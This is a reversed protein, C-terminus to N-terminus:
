IDEEVLKLDLIYLQTTKVNNYEGDLEAGIVKKEFGKKKLIIGVEMKSARRLNSSVLYDAYKDYFAEFSVRAGIEKICYKKIFDDIPTSHQEYKERRQEVTGENTFGGNTIIQKLYFICKKAFNKYEQEPITDLVSKKESFENLFDVICWRRYFGFATDTTEPLTNCAIIPKAYLHADFSGKGKFEIRMLDDGTVRKLTNTKKFVSKDVEGIFVVLKKYLKSGEFNLKALTDLDTSTINKWGIFKEIFRQFTSKGNSGGGIFCFVRHLPMDPLCCYACIERLTEVYSEDQVGQRVVWDIFLKDIIPTEDSTGLEWPIPNTVFYEPSAEFEKDNKLDYIKNKFQIWNRDAEKPKNARAALGLARLIEIWEVQRTIHLPTVTFKKLLLMIDYEDVIEWSYKNFNWIWWIKNNDFYLPQIKIFQQALDEKDGFYKIADKIKYEGSESYSKENTNYVDEDYFRRGIFEKGWKNLEIVNYFDLDGSRAKKIWGEMETYRKGPFNKEIIPTMTNKIEEDTLGESVLAIAINKFIVVDRFQGEPIINKSIHSFFDDKIHYNTFNGREGKVRLKDKELKTIISEVLDMDLTNWGEKMDILIKERGTKFHKKNEIALLGDESSKSEDTRFRKILVRRIEKRAEKEFKDLDKFFLNIHFGRSGTSWIYYNLKYAKLLLKIRDLEIEQELDLVVEVPLISRLNAKELEEESCDDFKKWNEWSQNTTNNKYFIKLAGLKRLGKLDFKIKKADM